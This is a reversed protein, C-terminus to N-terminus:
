SGKAEKYLHVIVEQKTLFHVIKNAQMNKKSISKANHVHPRHKIWTRLNCRSKKSESFAETCDDTREVMWFLSNIDRREASKMPATTTIPM